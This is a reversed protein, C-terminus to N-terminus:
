PKHARDHAARRAEAETRIRKLLTREDLDVVQKRLNPRSTAFLGDRSVLYVNQSALGSGQLDHAVNDNTQNVFVDRATAYLETTPDSFGEEDSEADSDYCPLTSIVNKIHHDSKSRVICSPINWLACNKLIGVDTRTFRTDFVIIILDFVYLGHSNFYQWDSHALTGAGPIDYWVYPDTSTSNHYRVVRETTEVIGTAAADPDRDRIGRFANILSSKGSGSVGAIAIHFFGETYQYRQRMQRIEGDTPWEVEPIGLRLHREAEERASAAQRAQEEAERARTEAMHREAEARAIQQEMERVREAEARAVEVARLREAEAWATAAEAARVREAEIRAAEMAAQAEYEIRLREAEAAQQAAEHAAAARRYEEERERAQQEALAQQEAWWQDHSSHNNGM